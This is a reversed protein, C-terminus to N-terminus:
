KEASVITLEQGDLIIHHYRPKADVDLILKYSSKKKADTKPFNVIVSDGKRVVTYNKGDFGDDMCSYFEYREGNINSVMKISESIGSCDGLKEYKLKHNIFSDSCSFLLCCSIIVFAYKM